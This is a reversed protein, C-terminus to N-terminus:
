VLPDPFRVLIIDIFYQIMLIQCRVSPYPITIIPIMRIISLILIDHPSNKKPGMNVMIMIRVMVMMMMMAM